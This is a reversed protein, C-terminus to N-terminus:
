IDGARCVSILSLAVGLLDSSSSYRFSIPWKPSPRRQTSRLMMSPKKWSTTGRPKQWRLRMRTSLRYRRRCRTLRRYLAHLLDSVLSHQYEKWVFSQENNSQGYSCTPLTVLIFLSASTVRMVSDRKYQAEGIRADKQVQATRAKGLSHLYDQSLCLHPVCLCAVCRSCYFPHCAMLCVCVLSPTTEVSSRIWWWHFSCSPTESVTLWYWWKLGNHLLPFWTVSFAKM